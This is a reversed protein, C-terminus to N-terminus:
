RLRAKSRRRVSCRDPGWFSGKSPRSGGRGTATSQGRGSRRAEFRSSHHTRKRPERCSGPQRTARDNVRSAPQVFWGRGSQPLDDPWRPGPLRRRIGVGPRGSGDASRRVVIRNGRAGVRPNFADRRDVSPEGLLVPRDMSRTRRAPHACDDCAYTHRANRSREVVHGLLNRGDAM